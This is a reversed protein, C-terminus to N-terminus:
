CKDYPADPTFTVPKAGEGYKYKDPNSVTGSSGAAIKKTIVKTQGWAGLFKASLTGSVCAKATVSVCKMYVVGNDPTVTPDPIMCNISHVGGVATRNSEGHGQGTGQQFAGSTSICYVNCDGGGGAGWKGDNYTVWKNDTTNYYRDGTQLASGDSRKAPDASQVGVFTGDNDQDGLTWLNQDCDWYVLQNIRKDFYHDGCVLATGTRRKTPPTSYDGLYFAIDEKDVGQKEWIAAGDTDDKCEFKTATNANIWKDGVHSPCENNIDNDADPNRTEYRAWIANGDSGDISTWTCNPTKWVYGGPYGHSTDDDKTPPTHALTKVWLAVTPDICIFEDGTTTNTWIDDKKYGKDVNDSPLPDRGIEAETRTSKGTWVAEDTGNERNTFVEGTGTNIWLDGPVFGDTNDDTKIPNRSKSVAWKAPHTPDLCVYKDAGVAVEDGKKYGKDTDCDVSPKTNCKTKVWKAVDDTPDVCIFEEGTATNKWTDDKKFFFDEDDTNIPDRGLEIENKKDKATWVAVSPDLCIFKDGTSINVWLDGAAFEPEKDDATPDRYMVPNWVASGTSDDISMYDGIESHWITDKPYGTVGDEAETPAVKAIVHIPETGSAWVNADKTADKCVYEIDTVTDRYSTGVYLAPFNSNTKPEGVGTYAKSAITSLREM